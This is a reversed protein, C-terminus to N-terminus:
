PTFSFSFFYARLMETSTHDVFSKSIDISPQLIIHLDEKPLSKNISLRFFLYWPFEILDQYSLDHKTWQIGEWALSLTIQYRYNKFRKSSQIVSQYGQLDKQIAFYFNPDVRLLTNVKNLAFSIQVRMQYLAENDKKSLIQDISNITWQYFAQAQELLAQDVLRKGTEMAQQLLLEEQPPLYSKLLLKPSYIDVKALSPLYLFLLNGIPFIRTEQSPLPISFIDKGSLDFFVLSNHFIAYFIRPNQNEAIALTGIARPSRQYFKKPPIILLPPLNQEQPNELVKTLILASSKNDYYLIQKNPLLQLYEVNKSHDAIVRPAKDEMLIDPYFLIKQDRSIILQRGYLRYERGDRGNSHVQQINDLWRGLHSNYLSISGNPALNLLLNPSIFNYQGSNNEWRNSQSYFISLLTDPSASFDRNLSLYGRAFYLHLQGDPGLVINKLEGWQATNVWPKLLSNLDITHQDQFLDEQAFLRVSEGAIIMALSFYILAFFYLKRVVWYNLLCYKSHIPKFRSAISNTLFGIM